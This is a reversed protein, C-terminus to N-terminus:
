RQRLYQDLLYRAISRPPPLEPLAGLPFWRADELEHRDVCLEGGEYEATFGAM